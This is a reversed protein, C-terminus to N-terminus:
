PPRQGGRQRAQEIRTELAVREQLLEKYTAM